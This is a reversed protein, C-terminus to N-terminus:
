SVFCVILSLEANKLYLLLHFTESSPSTKSLNLSIQRPFGRDESSKTVNGANPFEPPRNPKLGVLAEAGWWIPLKFSWRMDVTTISLALRTVMAELREKRLGAAVCAEEGGLHIM